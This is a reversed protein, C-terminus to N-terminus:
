FSGMDLTFGAPSTFTGFDLGQNVIGTSSITVSQASVNTTIDVGTGAVLTLTDENTAVVDAEGLVSITSFANSATGGGTSTGGALASLDVTNGGSITLENTSANWSLSQIHAAVSIDQVSTIRGQQDVTFRPINTASGYTGAVVSTNSLNLIVDGTSGGGILGNGAVVNTIDGQPIAVETVNTVIGKDNVTISAGVLSNGYTGPTVGSDSLMETATWTQTVADYKLVDQDSAGTATIDQLDGLLINAAVTSANIGFTLSDLNGSASFEIGTNDTVFYLTDQPKEAALDVGYVENNANKLGDVRLTKFYQHMNYADEASVGGGSGSTNGSGVMQVLNINQIRGYSDVTIQPAHTANGYTAATVGTAVLDITANSNNGTGGTVRISGSTGSVSAVYDSSITQAINATLPVQSVDTIQGKTNVTFVPVTSSSGYSGAVNSIDQIYVGSSNAVLGGTAVVSLTTGVKRLGNSTSYPDNAVPRWEGASTWTLVESPQPAYAGTTRTDNLDALNVGSFVTGTGATNVRLFKLASGSYSSPTDNLQIFTNAM